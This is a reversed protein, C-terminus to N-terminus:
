AGEKKLRRTSIQQFIKISAAVFHEGSAFLPLQALLRHGPLLLDDYGDFLRANPPGIFASTHPNPFSIEIYGYGLYIM